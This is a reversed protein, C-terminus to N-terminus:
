WLEFSEHFGTAFEEAAGPRVHFVPARPEGSPPADLLGAIRDRPHLLVKAAGDLDIGGHDASVVIRARGALRRALGEIARDLAEVETRVAQSAPGLGHAVSDVKSYYFYTYTQQASATVRGVLQAVADDLSQYADVPVGGSVAKTYVSDVIGEPMLLRADYRYSALLSRWSFLDDGTLGLENLPRHTFRERFPLAVTQVGRDPLYVFWGLLGHEAPWAGCALSTLAPATSSPFVAAMEFAVHRGLFSDAPAAEVLDLGLGDALVMVYHEAPGIADRV